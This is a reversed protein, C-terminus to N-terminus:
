SFSNRVGVTPNLSYSIRPTARPLCLCMAEQDASAGVSGSILSTKLQLPLCTHGDHHSLIIAILFLHTIKYLIVTNQLIEMTEDRTKLATRHPLCGLYTVGIKWLTM